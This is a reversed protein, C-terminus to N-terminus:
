MYENLCQMIKKKFFFLPSFSSTLFHFMMALRIFARAATLFDQSWLIWHFVWVTRITDACWPVRNGEGWVSHKNNLCKGHQYALLLQQYWWVGWTSRPVPAVKKKRAWRRKMDLRNKGGINDEEEACKMQLGLLAFTAGEKWTTSSLHVHQEVHENHSCTYCSDWSPRANDVKRVTWGSMRM